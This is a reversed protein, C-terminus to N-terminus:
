TVITHLTPAITYPKHLCKQAEHLLYKTASPLINHYSNSSSQPIAVVYKCKDTLTPLKVLLLNTEQPTDGVGGNERTPNCHSWGSGARNRTLGFSDLHMWNLGLTDLHAWTFGLSDLHVM